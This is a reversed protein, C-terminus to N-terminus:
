PAYVTMATGIDQVLIHKPLRAFLVTVYLDGAAGSINIAQILYIVWFWDPPVLFNLVLLVMGWVVIPALAIILYSSKKFYAESGAYAYLGTFGFRAMRGSFFWIFVGHVLEHLVLYVLLAAILVALRAFYVAMGGDQPDFLNFPVAFLVPVIMAALLLLSFLNVWVATKRDKQLDVRRIPRYGNPLVWTDEM